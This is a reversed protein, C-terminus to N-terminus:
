AYSHEMSVKVYEGHTAIVCKMLRLDEDLFMFVPADPDTTYTTTTPVEILRRCADLSAPITM